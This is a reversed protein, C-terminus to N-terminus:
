HVQRAKIRVADDATMPAQGAHLGFEQHIEDALAQRGTLQGQAFGVNYGARWHAEHEETSVGVAAPFRLPVLEAVPPPFLRHWLTRLGNM